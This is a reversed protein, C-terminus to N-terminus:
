ENVIADLDTRTSGRCDCWDATMADDIEVVGVAVTLGYTRRGGDGGRKAGCCCRLHKGSRKMCGARRIEQVVIADADQLYGTHVPIEGLLRVALGPGPFPHKALIERPVWSKGIRRVEDKFLDRLPEILAFCRRRVRCQPAIQDDGIARVSVSEIVM